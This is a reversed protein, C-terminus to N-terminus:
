PKTAVVDPKPEASPTPAESAREGEPSTGAATAATPSTTSAAARGPITVPLVISAGQAGPAGFRAVTVAKHVCALLAPAVKVGPAPAASEVDGSPAVSIRLEITKPSPTPNESACARANVDIAARVRDANMRQRVRPTPAPRVAKAAQAESASLAVDRARGAARAGSATTGGHVDGLDRKTTPAVPGGAGAPEEAYSPFSVLAIGAAVLLALPHRM